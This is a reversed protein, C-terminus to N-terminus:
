GNTQKMIVTNDINVQYANCINQTQTETNKNTNLPTKSKVARTGHESFFHYM